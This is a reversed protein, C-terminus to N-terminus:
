RRLQGEIQVPSDRHTYVRLGLVITKEEKELPYFPGSNQGEEDRNRQGGDAYSGGDSGTFNPLSSASSPAHENDVRISLTHATEHDDFDLETLDKGALADIPTSLFESALSKDFDLITINKDTNYAWTRSIIEAQCSSSAISESKLKEAVIRSLIRDLHVVPEATHSSGSSSCCDQDRNQAEPSPSDHRDLRVHVVYRGAQLLPIEANISRARSFSPSSSVIPTKEGKKFVLFDFSWTSQNVPIFYREDLKSLVIIAKSSKSLSITFSIDGYGWGFLSRPKAKLWQSSMIWSSDLLITRDITDWNELFDSYEMVFQGDDGFSHELEELAPLWEKTWEKSGDSWPGKWESDGWPNRLVVFRKNNYEVARLVSYAHGGILGNLTTYTDNGTLDEIAEGADGGDLAAYNGHLKAYAKEILPVWTEGITGSKAFHLNNGHKRAATTYAEKSNHYLRRQEFPLDEFKPITTYLFDDIIVVVWHADRFFVFGYVGVEENREVCFKEVLDVTTSMTALASLFWCDGLPGQVIDSPDTGDIYFEPKDFIQTVRQAGSADYVESHPVLGRLCRDRDRELDFEVDRFKRNRALCDTAIAIVREKCNEVALELERSILVGARSEDKFGPVKEVPRRAKRM